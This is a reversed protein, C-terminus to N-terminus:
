LEQYPGTRRDGRGGGWLFAAKNKRWTKMHGDLANHSANLQGGVFWRAFPPDWNLVQDWGRHWSLRRAIEAWFSEIDRLSQQHQALYRQLLQTRSDVPPNVTDRM